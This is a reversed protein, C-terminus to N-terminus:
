NYIINFKTSKWIMDVEQVPLPCFPHMARIYVRKKPPLFCLQDIVKLVVSTSASSINLWFDVEGHILNERLFQCWESFQAVAEDETPNRVSHTYGLEGSTDYSLTFIFSAHVRRLSSWGPLGFHPFKSPQQLAFLDLYFDNEGYLIECCELYIKRCVRLLYVPFQVPGCSHRFFELLPHHKISIPKIRSPLGTMVIPCRTLGDSKLDCELSRLGLEEFIRLRLSQPIGLLTPQYRRRSDEEEM